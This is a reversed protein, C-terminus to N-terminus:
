GGINVAAVKVKEDKVFWKRESNVRQVFEDFAGQSICM